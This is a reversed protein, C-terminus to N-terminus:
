SGNYCLESTKCTVDGVCIVRRRDKGKSLTNMIFVFNWLDSAIHAAKKYLNLELNGYLLDSNLVAYYM